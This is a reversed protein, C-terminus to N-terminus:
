GISKLIEDAEKKQEDSGLSMVEDLLEKASDVDDM